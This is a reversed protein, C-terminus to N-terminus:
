TKAITWGVQSISLHILVLVCATMVCYALLSTIPKEPESCNLVTQCLLYYPLLTLSGILGMTPNWYTCAFTLSVSAAVSFLGDIYSQEVPM